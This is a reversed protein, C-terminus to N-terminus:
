VTIGGSSDTLNGPIQKSVLQWPLEEVEGTGSMVTSGGTRSGDRRAEVTVKGIAQRMSTETSTEAVGFVGFCM